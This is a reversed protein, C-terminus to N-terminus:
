MYSLQMDIKNETEKKWKHFCKLVSLPKYYFILYINSESSASKSSEPDSFTSSLWTSGKGNFAIINPITITAKISTTNETDTPAMQRICHLTLSDRVISM